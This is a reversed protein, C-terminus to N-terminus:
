LLTFYLAVTLLYEPTENPQKDLNTLFIDSVHNIITFTAYIPQDVFVPM